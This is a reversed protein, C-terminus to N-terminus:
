RAPPVANTCPNAASHCHKWPGTQVRYRGRGKIAGIRLPSRCSLSFMKCFEAETPLLTGVTIPGQHILQLIDHYVREGLTVPAQDQVVESM